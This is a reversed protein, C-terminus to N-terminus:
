GNARAPACCGDCGHITLYARDTSELWAVDDPDTHGIGHPCTRESIGKDGRYNIDWERMHHDSPNHVICARGACQTPPHTTYGIGKPLQIGFVPEASNDPYWLEQAPQEVYEEPHTRRRKHEWQWNCFRYYPDLWHKHLFTFPNLNM